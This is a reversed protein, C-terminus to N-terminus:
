CRRGEASGGALPHDEAHSGAGRPPRCNTAHPSRGTRRQRAVFIHRFAAPAPSCFRWTYFRGGHGYWRGQIRRHPAGPCCKRGRRHACKHRRGSRRVERCRILPLDPVKIGGLGPSGDPREWIFTKREPTDDRVHVAMVEGTANRVEYRTERRGSRAKHGNRQTHSSWLGREKLAGIVADQSCGAKCHVLTKGQGESVVLSPKDDDHAPCHTANRSRACTCGQRGCRFAERIATAVPPDNDNKM